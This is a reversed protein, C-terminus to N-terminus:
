EAGTWQGTPLNLPLEAKECYSNASGPIAWQPTPLNLNLNHKRM